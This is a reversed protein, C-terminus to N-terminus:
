YGFLEELTVEKVEGIQKLVNMDVDARKGIILYTFNKGKVHQNFFKEFADLNTKQVKEYIDKRIDNKIGKDLNSLYNWYIGSKIIRESEIKKIISEKSANFQKEARPMKNMLEMLADTATKMKDAQTGVFGYIYHSEDPKNPTTFASFASYALAKSERIEQFVISSLGSGFYENFVRIDPMLAKDFIKNKSLLLINVQVMDYDVFYVLPKESPLEAYKVATPYDKLPTPTKHHNDLASAILKPSAPGYYFIKHKYSNIERIKDALDFPNISHLEKEPIIDTFPNKQGYKGYNFMGSWLIANRNLKVDARDKLITEVYSHYTAPDPEVEALVHELLELGRIFNKQLGSIYVYSRESGASVGMSIGLKFFEKQLNEASYKSTGLLPLYNVALPLIKDNYKGMDFVYYLNFIENTPNKITALEIGSKLKERSIAKDFDVFEPKLNGSKIGMFEKFFESQADRNVEIATLKPKDVKVITTDKGIRKYVVVYNNGYHENAFKVIDQKTIKEMEDNFKLYENWESLNAFYNVFTHAIRNSEMARMQGLRFDNICAELLWDDFEGRKVKEIENLLLDKVDELSQGERPRGDFEHQGYYIMFHPSCGASQVRQKQVLNLDILGAKSNNLLYDILTVYKRHDTNFGNFRFAINVAEMDPGFVERIIPETIPDEVPSNFKPPNGAPKSGFYKDILTIAEDPDIDGSICMAMNNPVYYANFYNHINVMSPNKLHEPKGITTQTGYPHKKYLASQMTESVRAWDQDQYMNFEEYVTELETHFLRLVLSSFRESELKLWKEFENSPIDNIYVTRENSTYANTGKAGLSTVLKDYESPVALKAALFSLSDIKAYIAKKKETDTTNKHQEFLDSIQNLMASEKQWDLTAIKSTGKFMMHELYHALGTTEKPDYTSGAKVAIYTQLRPEDKNVSLYVKMGNKLTYIRVKLPDDVVASYERGSKDTQKTISYKEAATMVNAFILAFFAILLM